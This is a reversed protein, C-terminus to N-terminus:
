KWLALRARVGDILAGTKLGAKQRIDNIDWGTLNSLTQVEREQRQALQEFYPKAAECKNEDGKWAHRLVYRTQYNQRDKTEQFMLDEPFTEASYRVHLRTVMAQQAGGPVPRRIMPAPVGPAAQGPTLHQEPLWSVGAEKLEETSLPDAACPDCWSMDWFYETFVVKLAERKAQENFMAKYFQTFESRLFVPLDMNAPLKVTRYNTTEVRGNKTLMYIVLDQPGQANITGLRIPLMFKESNFTFQLPRLLTSGTKVQEKLNVKAVFFKLGQRIYPQLAKSAGKPIRYKNLNLWRELGGSEKASLIVIDYEGVTYQAEIKVGLAKARDEMVRGSPAAAPAVRSMSLERRAQCPDPDFYEALRPATYADIREFIKKDVVKIQEKKLVEPVPVVMAFETLTGKYDNLMTITTSADHRAMIVQSADNFLSADAKGVYFGCFAQASNAVMMAALAVTGCASRIYRLYKIKNV